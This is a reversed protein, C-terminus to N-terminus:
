VRGGSAQEGMGEQPFWLLSVKGYNHGGRFRSRCPLERHPGKQHSMYEREQSFLNRKNKKLKISTYIFIFPVFLFQMYKVNVIHHKYIIVLLEDSGMTVMKHTHTRTPLSCKPNIRKALVCDM